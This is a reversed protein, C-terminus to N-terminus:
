QFVEIQIPLGVSNYHPDEDFIEVIKELQKKIINAYNNLPIDHYTPIHEFLEVYREDGGINYGKTYIKDSQEPESKNINITINRIYYKNNSDKAGVIFNYVGNNYEPKNISLKMYLLNFFDMYSIDPSLFQTFYEEINLKNNISFLENNGHMAVIFRNNKFVKQIKGRKTDEELHGDNFKKSAKSDGFAILGYSTNLIGVFSMNSMDKRIPTGIAIM